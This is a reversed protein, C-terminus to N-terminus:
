FQYHACLPFRNLSFPAILNFCRISHIFYATHPFNFLFLMNSIFTNGPVNQPYIIETFKGYSHQCTPTPLHTNTLNLKTSIWRKQSKLLKRMKLLKPKLSNTKRSIHKYVNWELHWIMLIFVDNDLWHIFYFNYHYM